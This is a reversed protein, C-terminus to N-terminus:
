KKPKASTAADSPKAPAAAQIPKGQGTMGKGDLKASLGEHLKGTPANIGLAIEEGTAVEVLEISRPPNPAEPKSDTEESM